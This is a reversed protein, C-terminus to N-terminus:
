WLRGGKDEDEVVDSIVSADEDTANNDELSNRAIGNKFDDEDKITTIKALFQIIGNGNSNTLSTDDIGYIEYVTKGFIFRQNLKIDITQKNREVYVFVQGTPLMVDYRNYTIDLKGQTAKSGIPSQSALCPFSVIKSSDLNGDEDKWNDSTSWKLEHNCRQILARSTFDKNGWLDSVIWYSGDFEIYSGISLYQRPRFLVERLSGMREVETIRTDIETIDPKESSKVKVVQFSPSAHFTAEIFATTNNAYAEGTDNGKRKLKKKFNQIYNSM